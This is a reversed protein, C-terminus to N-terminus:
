KSSSDLILWDTHCTSVSARRAPPPFDPPLGFYLLYDISCSLLLHFSPSLGPRGKQVTPSLGLPSAAAHPLSSSTPMRAPASSPLGKGGRRHLRRPERHLWLAYVNGGATLLLTLFWPQWSGPRLSYPSTCPLSPTSPKLRLRARPRLPHGSGTLAPPSILAWLPAPTPLPGCAPPCCTLLTLAGPLWSHTAPTAPVPWVAALVELVRWGGTAGVSCSFPRSGRPCPLLRLPVHVAPPCKRQSLLGGPSRAPSLHGHRHLAQVLLSLGSLLVRHQPWVGTRCCKEWKVAMFDTILELFFSPWRFCSAVKFRIPETVSKQTTEGKQCKIKWSVEFVRPVLPM